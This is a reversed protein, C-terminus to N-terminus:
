AVDEVYHSSSKSKSKSNANENGKKNKRNGDEKKCHNHHDTLPSNNNGRSKSSSMRPLSKNLKDGKRVHESEKQVSKLHGSNSSSKVVAASKLKGGTGILAVDSRMSQKERITEMIKKIDVKVKPGLGYSLKRQSIRDSTISCRSKILTKSASSSKNKSHSSSKKKQDDLPASKQVNM